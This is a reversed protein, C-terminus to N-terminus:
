NAVAVPSAAMLAAPQERIRGDLLCAVNMDGMVNVTTRCRDLFWDVTLLMAIYDLPLHVAKFVLTMTVLGAEPIGAAGVSAVISMLVVMIQESLSLNRGLGQAVFLAAMAEYLATGDNNFNSGVLAGMSASEERLGVKEKLCAYTVPMTATSSGTSFAMVLADRSGRLLQIPRVWSGLRVRVLYYATQLTLAVLVALVFAGLGLFASFGKTGIVAAVIGFAALPIVELIWHLVIVLAAFTVNILKDVVEMGPMKERHLRKLAIGFALALCIVALIRGDDGLPGFLSKPVNKLLEAVADTKSLDAEAPPELESHAGPRLINAVGLGISIAVVTNLLLLGVLRLGRRGGIDADILARVVAVLVIAPALASLLQLVLKGPLGLFEAREKFILGCVAGLLVAAVIRLYLPIALWRSWIAITHPQEHPTSQTM